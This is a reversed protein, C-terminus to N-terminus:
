EVCRYTRCKKDGIYCKRRGSIFLKKAGKTKATGPGLETFRARITGGFAINEPDIGLEEILRDVTEGSTTDPHTRVDDLVAQQYARQGGSEVLETFVAVSTDAVASM